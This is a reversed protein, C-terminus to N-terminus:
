FRYIRLEIRHIKTYQYGHCLGSIIRLSDYLIIKSDCVTIKVSCSELKIGLVLLHGRASTVQFKSTADLIAMWVPLELLMAAEGSHQFEL